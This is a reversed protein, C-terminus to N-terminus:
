IGLPYEDEVEEYEVDITNEEDDVNNIINHCMAMHIANNRTIPDSPDFSEFLKQLISM